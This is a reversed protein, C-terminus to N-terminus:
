GEKVVGARGENGASGVGSELGEKGKREGRGGGSRAGDGVGVKGNERV